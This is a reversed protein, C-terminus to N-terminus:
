QSIEWRVNVTISYSNEGTAVPVPASEDMAMTRAMKGMTRPRPRGRNQESIELIRGLGVAASDALTKAKAIAKAMANQRAKTIAAEPKDSLFQIGGGSNVGLTVAKDLIDGLSALKRIRVSLSNNVTYGVIRPPKQVGNSTRNYHQYRPQINFNSTQLDRDEIGAEKMAALVNTMALTNANLAERATKGQRLVTLNIMAMDPVVTATGTATVFITGPKERDEALAPSTALALGILFASITTPVSIPRM